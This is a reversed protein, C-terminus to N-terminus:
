GILQQEILNVIRETAKKLPKDLLIPTDNPCRNIFDNLWKTLAVCDTVYPITNSMLAGLWKKEIKRPLISLTSKGLLHAEYLLASTMGVVLNSAYVVEWPTETQSVYDFHNLLNGFDELINKPHLRLVLYPDCHLKKLCNLLAEIVVQTRPQYQGSTQLTYDKSYRYEASDLVGESVEAVFSIVLRDQPALNPFLKSRLHRISMRQLDNRADLLRENHPHGCLKINKSPYGLKLFENRTLADPVILIDPTNQLPNNGLGSFRKDANVHADVFGLTKIARARAATILRLGLTNPDEATGVVVIRPQFHKLLMDPDSKFQAAQNVDLMVVSKNRSKLLPPIEKIFNVAGIDEAYVLVDCSM